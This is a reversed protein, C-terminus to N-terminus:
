KVTEMILKNFQKSFMPPITHAAKEMDWLIRYLLLINKPSLINDAMAIYLIAGTAAMSFGWM